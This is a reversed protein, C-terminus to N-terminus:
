ISVNWSLIRYSVQSLGQNKISFDKNCLTCRAAYSNGTATATDKAKTLWSFEKEWQVQYCSNYKRRKAKNEENNDSECDNDDSDSLEM